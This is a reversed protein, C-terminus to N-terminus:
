MPNSVPSAKVVPVTVDVPGSQLVRDVSGCFLHTLFQFSKQRLISVKEDFCDIAQCFLPKGKSVDKQSSDILPKASCMCNSM